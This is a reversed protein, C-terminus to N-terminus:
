ASEVALVTGDPGIHVAAPLEKLGLRTLESMRVALMRGSIKNDNQEKALKQPATAFVTVVTEKRRTATETWRRISEASCSCDSFVVTLPRGVTLISARRGSETYAAFNPLRSGETIGAGSVTAALQNASLSDGRTDQRVLGFSAIQLLVIGFFIPDSFMSKKKM